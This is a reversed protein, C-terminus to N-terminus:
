WGATQNSVKAYVKGRQILSKKQRIDEGAIKTNMSTAVTNARGAALEEELMIPEYWRRKRAAPQIFQQGFSFSTLCFVVNRNFSPLIKDSRLPKSTTIIM